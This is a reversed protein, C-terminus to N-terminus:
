VGMMVPRGAGVTDGKFGGEVPCSSQAIWFTFRFCESAGVAWLCGLGTRVRDM